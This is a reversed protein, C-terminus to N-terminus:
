PPAICPYVSSLFDYARSDYANLAGPGNVGLIALGAVDEGPSDFGLGFIATSLVAFFESPNLAEYSGAWLGDRVVSEEYVAAAEDSLDDNSAMILHALEHVVTAGIRIGNPDFTADLDAVNEEGVAATGYAAVGRHDSFVLGDAAIQERLKAFEAIDTVSTAEPVLVLLMSPVPPLDPSLCSLVRSAFVSANVLSESRVDAAGVITVRGVQVCHKYSTIEGDTLYVFPSFIRADRFCSYVDSGIVSTKAEKTRLVPWGTDIGMLSSLYAYDDRTLGAPFRSIIFRLDAEDPKQADPVYYPRTSIEYLLRAMQMEADDYGGAGYAVDFATRTEASLRQLHRTEEEAATSTARPRLTELPSAAYIFTGSLRSRPSPKPTPTDAGSDCAVAAVCLIATLLILLPVDRWPKM